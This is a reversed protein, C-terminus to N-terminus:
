QHLAGITVDFSAEMVAESTTPHAFITKSIDTAKLKNTIAIALTAILSNADPGVVTAGLINDSEDALIKVFGDRENMTKAKGNGEFNFKGVKYKVGDKKLQDELVGVTAIEPSTFIVSPVLKVDFERNEGLINDVALIGEASAAHALQIMNNVDGIAYINKVNTHMGLDVKIGRGRDNLEISTNELGLGDMNSARGIAVLVKDGVVCEEKGEYEFTTVAKKDLSEKFGTVKASTVIKIGNKKAMDMMLAQVDSDVMPLIHDLYELVTVKVGLHAYLFAFELGIVGAGIVTLSSPLERNDLATTSNLVCPLDAGPIRVQSIKSGTAIICNEFSLHYEKDETVAKVENDSLFSATGHIVDVGNKELLYGVGTNLEKVIGDKRDIIKNMNPRYSGEDVDIGFEKADVLSKYVESSKILTKTPICGVNLCTGGLPGKEVLTVKLGKKAAYLACVYGGPGGGLILLSTKKTEFNKTEEKTEIVPAVAGSELKVMVTGPAVVQGVEVNIEVVKGDNEAKFVKHVKGLELELLVDDAKVEDGVKVLVKFVKGSFAANPMTIETVVKECAAAKEEIDVMITGPAVVQGVEVNIAKVVGDVESKFVKHVKGLELELVVDDKKVSDGVKVLVKFVKGSFAANTM